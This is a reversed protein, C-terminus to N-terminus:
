DDPFFDGGVRYGIRWLSRALDKAGQDVFEEDMYWFLAHLQEHILVELLEEGQLEVDIRIEKNPLDPAECVGRTALGEVFRLTWRKGGLTLQKM